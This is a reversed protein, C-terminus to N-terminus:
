CQGRWSESKVFSLKISTALKSPTNTYQHTNTNTQITRTHRTNTVSETQGATTFYSVAFDPM